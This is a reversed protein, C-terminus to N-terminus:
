GRLSLVQLTEGSSASLAALAGSDVGGSSDLFLTVLAKAGALLATTFEPTLIAHKLSIFSVSPLQPALVAPTPCRLKAVDFARVLPGLQSQSFVRLVNTQTRFDTDELRVSSWLMPAKMVVHHWRTSVFCLGAQEVVPLFAAITCLVADSLASFLCTCTPNWKGRRKKIPVGCEHPESPTSLSRCVCCPPWVVPSLTVALSCPFSCPANLCVGHAQLRSCARVQCQEGCPALHVAACVNDCVAAQAARTRYCIPPFGAHSRLTPPSTLIPSFFYTQRQGRTGGDRARGGTAAPTAAAHTTATRM